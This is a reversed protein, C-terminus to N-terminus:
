EFENGLVVVKSQGYHKVLEVISDKPQTDCSSLCFLNMIIILYLRKSFKM